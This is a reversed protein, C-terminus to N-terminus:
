RERELFGLRLAVPQHILDHRSGNERDHHGRRCPQQGGARHIDARHDVVVTL